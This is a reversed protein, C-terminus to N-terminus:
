DMGTGIAWEDPFEAEYTHSSTQKLATAEAFTKPPAMTSVQVTRLSIDKILALAFQHFIVTV